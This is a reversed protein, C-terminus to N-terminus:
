AMPPNPLCPRAGTPDTITSEYFGTSCTHDLYSTLNGEGTTVETLIDGNEYATRAYSWHGGEDDMVDTLRGSSDYVHEFRNGEPEIEATMLGDPTYEFTFYSTDPYTIRTLHNNADITLTTIIGDPPHSLPPVGSGDRGITTQNDFRDTITVLNKDEDYGFDYFAIGTDLDITKEHRGSNSM